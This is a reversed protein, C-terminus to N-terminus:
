RDHKKLFDDSFLALSDYIPVEPYASEVNAENMTSRILVPKCGAAYAAQIDTLRDGLFYVGSSDCCFGQSLAHLMGPKPKRCLCGSDPMHKCYHIAHINGGHSKIQALMFDHIENLTQESYLGRAIGSQNTAVGIQYGAKSLRVIAELSGPIFHFEEISKIYHESDQNIVGDRDLFLYKMYAGNGMSLYFDM